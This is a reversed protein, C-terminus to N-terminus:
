ILKLKLLKKELQLYYVLLLNSSANFYLQDNAQWFDHANNFEKTYIKLKEIAELVTLIYILNSDSYM